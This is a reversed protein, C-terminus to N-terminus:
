FGEDLSGRVFEEVYDMLRSAATDAGAEDGAVIAEAVEAHHHAARVLDLGTKVRAYWFRRSRTQLLALAETAHPNRAADCVARNFEADLRMFETGDVEEGVARMGSAIVSLAAIEEHQRRRAARGAVLRELPRRVELALLEGRPNMETVWIGRRPQIELLGDRELLKLAERVPTRGIGVRACLEAERILSGPRLALTTLMEELRAYALSALSGARTEPIPPIAHKM